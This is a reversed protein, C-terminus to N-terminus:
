PGVRRGAQTGAAWHGHAAQRSVPQCEVCRCFGQIVHASRPLAGPPSATPFTCKLTGCVIQVQPLWHPLTRAAHLCTFHSLSCTLLGTPPCKTAVGVGLSSFPPPHGHRGTAASNSPLSHWTSNKCDRSDFTSNHTFPRATHAVQLCTLTPFNPSPHCPLLWFSQLPPIVCHPEPANLAHLRRPFAMCGSAVQGSCCDCRNWLRVGHVTASSLLDVQWRCGPLVGLSPQPSPTAPRRHM